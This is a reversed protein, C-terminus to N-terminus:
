DDGVGATLGAPGALGALGALEALGALGTLETLEATVVSRRRDVARDLATSVQQEVEVLLRALADAGEARVQTLVEQCWRHLRARDALNGRRTTAATAAVLGLGAALVASGGVVPLGLLPLVAAPLLATRWGGAIGTWWPAPPDPTPLRLPGPPGLGGPLEGLALGRRAAVRRAAAHVTAARHAQAGHRLQEVAAALVAPLRSRDARGAADLYARAQGDLHALEGSMRAAADLRALALEARLEGRHGDLAVREARLESRRARLAQAHRSSPHEAM